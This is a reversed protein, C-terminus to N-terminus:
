IYLLVPSTFLYYRYFKPSVENDHYLYKTMKVADIFVVKLMGFLQKIPLYRSLPKYIDLDSAINIKENGYAKKLLNSGVESRSIAFLRDSSIKFHESHLISMYILIFEMLFQIFIGFVINTKAKCDKLSDSFLLMENELMSKYSLNM